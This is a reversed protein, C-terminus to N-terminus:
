MEPMTQVGLGAGADTEEDSYVAVHVPAEQLGALKLGAYRARREGEYGEMARDNARRFNVAIAERRAPDDVTVFRWPQSLGVSPAHVILEILSRVLGAPVPTSRFRRADHRWMVLDRLKRRFELDFAPPQDM